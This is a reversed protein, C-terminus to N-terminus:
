DSKMTALERADDILNTCLGPLGDLRDLMIELRREPSATPDDARQAAEVLATFATKWWDLSPNDINDEAPVRTRVVVGRGLVAIPREGLKTLPERAFALVPVGHESGATLLRRADAGVQPATVLHVGPEPVFEDNSPVETCQIGHEEAHALAANARATWADRLKILAENLLVPDRPGRAAELARRADQESECWDADTHSSSNPASFNM